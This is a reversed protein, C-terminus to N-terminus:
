RATSTAHVAGGRNQDSSAAKVAPASKGEKRLDDAAKKLEALQAEPALHAIREAQTISIERNNLAEIVSQVANAAIYVLRSKNRQSKAEITLTNQM